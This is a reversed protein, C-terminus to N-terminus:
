EQLFGHEELLHGFERYFCEKATGWDGMDLWRRVVDRFFATDEVAHQIAEEYEAKSISDPTQWQGAWFDTYLGQMKLHNASLWWQTHSALESGLAADDDLGERGIAEIVEMHKRHKEPLTPDSDVERFRQILEAFFIGFMFTGGAVVHRSQHRTLMRRLLKESVALGLAYFVLVYSKIREEAGLVSLSVAVGYIGSDAVLKACRFLEDATELSLGAGTWAEQPTPLRGRDESGNEM